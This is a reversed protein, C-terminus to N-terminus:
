APIAGNRRAPDLADGLMATPPVVLVPCAATAALAASVSGLLASRVPGHGRSGVALMRVGIWAGQERLERVPDGVEVRLPIPPAEQGGRAADVFVPDVEADLRTALREAVALARRSEESGDVGCVIRGDTGAEILFRHGAGPPVILLPCGATAALRQSVSGLLAAALGTRGRAGVVLLEAAEEEAIDALSEAPDGLVVRSEAQLDRRAREVLSTGARVARRRELERARPDGYPFPPPDDAAHALVLRDGLQTALVGAVLAASRSGSSGDIGAVISTSTHTMGDSHPSALRTSIPQPM